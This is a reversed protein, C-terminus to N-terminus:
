PFLKKERRITSQAKRWTEISVIPTLNNIRTMRLGKQLYGAYIPREAIASIRSLSYRNNSSDRAGMSDLKTKIEPLMNGVALMEFITKLAPAYRPDPEYHNNVLRYGFLRSFFVKGGSFYIRTGVKRKQKVRVNHFAKIFEMPKNRWPNDKYNNLKIIM